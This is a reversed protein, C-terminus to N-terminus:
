NAAPTAAPTSPAQAPAQTRASTDLFPIPAGAYVNQPLVGNWREARRLDVLAPNSSLAKAMLEQAGAEAEGKVRIAEAQAKAELLNSEARGRAEEIAKNAGGAAAIKATEADVQAKRKLGESQEIQTKVVAAAGQAQRFTPQYDLNPLQVDLVDLHYLRRAESKVVESLTKVLDGRNNAIESVNVKGAEIKWRDIVMSQLKLQYDKNNTFIFEIEDQPVRFQVTLTADVEQNDVTYTNLSPTTFQQADVRFDQTTDLFPVKFHLGPQAVYSFAGARSVVMREYQAVTFFSSAITGIGVLVALGAVGLAVKSGIGHGGDSM